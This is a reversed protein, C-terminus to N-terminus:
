WEASDNGLQNGIYILSELEMWKSRLGIFYISYIFYLYIFYIYLIAGSYFDGSKFSSYATLLLM